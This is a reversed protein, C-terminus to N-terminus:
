RNRYGSRRNGGRYRDAYESEICHRGTNWRPAQGEGSPESGARRSRVPRRNARTETGCASRVGTWLAPGPKGTNTEVLRCQSDGGPLVANRRGSGRDIDSDRGEASSVNPGSRKGPKALWGPEVGRGERDVDLLTWTGFTSSWTAAFNMRGNRYGRFGSGHSSPRQRGTDGGPCVSFAKCSLGRCM